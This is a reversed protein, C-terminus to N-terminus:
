VQTRIFSLRQIEIMLYKHFVCVRLRRTRSVPLCVKESTMVTFNFDPGWTCREHLRQKIIHEDIHTKISTQGATARTRNNLYLMHKLPPESGLVHLAAIRIGTMGTPAMHGKVERPASVAPKEPLGM